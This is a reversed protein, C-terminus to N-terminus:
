ELRVSVGKAKFKFQAGDAKQARGLSGGFCLADDAFVQLTATTAGELAAAAGTLTM